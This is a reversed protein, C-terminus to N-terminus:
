CSVNYIWVPNYIRAYEGPDYWALRYYLRCNIPGFCDVDPWAPTSYTHSDKGAPLARYPSTGTCSVASATDRRLSISKTTRNYVRGCNPMTCTTGFTTAGPATEATSVLNAVVRGNATRTPLKSTDVGQRGLEAIDDGDEIAVAYGVTEASAKYGWGFATHVALMSVILTLALKRRM